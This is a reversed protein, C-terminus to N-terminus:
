NNIKFVLKNDKYLILLSDFKNIKDQLIMRGIETTIEKEIFRKIPRAGYQVSFSNEIIYKICTNDLAINIKQNSLDKNIQLLEINIIKELDCKNLPKFLVIDDLRNLFEPKFKEKLIQMVKERISQEINEYYNLNFKEVISGSGINSTMIILTNKFDITRGKSDTLRGEDLVQLLLNFVESNAKEIEDFLVVSYPQKRVAETLQGGDDHGIYGPPAGILKSVSHKEMYESMDLRILSAKNEFLTKALTKVLQTKGVGTPGLFMFTGIPKQLKKVGSKARIIANCVACVADEQGVIQEHLISNLNLVKQKETETLKSIPIGTWKSVVEAIDDETVEEKIKYTYPKKNLKLEENELKKLKFFNLESIKEFDNKRTAEDVQIKVENIQQKIQKIRDVIKKDIAWKKFEIEYLNKLTNINNDLEKCKRTYFSDNEQSLSIKEIELHLIKRQMEDIEIPLSDVNTRVMSSAEDMLDIAKDPLFRDSIYRDSLIACAIISKDSIRIGHHMEYKSKIGRLISITQEVTPAEVLIKQFRRELAGDKEIFKKYEDYTTSGITLIEGRALMPKLMNSTDLGGNSDGTGVVTHLEDIYLIIQGNSNKLIKLVEKLREEFEGRFKAGAILSGMDLSFIIRDRLADPVDNRIIRQALGEVIATKGVGPDGIIVPNNKTRRSLIRIMRNIEEERGIVPDLEGQIAEATLDRGYKLLINTLGEVKNNKIKLTSKQEILKDYFKQLHINYKEFISQSTIKNEKLIALYLHELGILSEYMERAFDEAVLIIKQSTRNYYLKTLADQKQLKDIAQEIDRIYSFIDIDMDKLINAIITNKQKIIALHMHLETLEVNGYKIAISQSDRMVQIGTESFKDANM